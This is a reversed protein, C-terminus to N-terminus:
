VGRDALIAYYVVIIHQSVGNNVLPIVLHTTDSYPDCNVYDINVGPTHMFYWIGNGDIEFWVLFGPAFDFNHDINHTEAGGGSALTSTVTGTLAIKISNKESNFGQNAITATKIDYGPKSFKIGLDTM